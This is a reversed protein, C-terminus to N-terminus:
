KSSQKILSANFTELCNEEQYKNLVLFYIFIYQSRFTGFTLKFMQAGATVLDNECLTRNLQSDIQNVVVLLHM